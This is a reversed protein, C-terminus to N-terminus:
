KYKLLMHALTAPDLPQVSDTIGASRSVNCFSFGHAAAAALIGGYRRTADTRTVLIRKIPLERFVELMDIAELSDGGAPMTLVPEIGAITSISKLEGLENKDYPSCGATDILVRTYPQIKELINELEQRSEAIKLKIGLIDTFAQLQEIGGARSTDTTIVSLQQKDMALKTALKAITLTKGIGAIGILMIRTDKNHFRLPEFIFNRSILKELSEKCLSDNNITNKRIIIETLDSDTIKKLLKAVLIEPLNHFRLINQLEFRIDSITQSYNKLSNLTNEQATEDGGEEIAAIIKVQRSGAKNETSLIIANDGLAERVMQMATQM